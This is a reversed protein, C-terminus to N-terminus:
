LNKYPGSADSFTRLETAICTYWTQLARTEWCACLARCSIVLHQLYVFRLLSAWITPQSFDMVHFTCEYISCTVFREWGVVHDFSCLFMLYEGNLFFPADSSGFLLCQCMCWSVIVGHVSLSWLRFMHAGGCFHVDLEVWAWCSFSLM